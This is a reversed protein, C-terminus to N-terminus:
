NSKAVEHYIYNEHHHFTCVKDHYFLLFKLSQLVYRVPLFNYCRPLSLSPFTISQRIGVAHAHNLTKVRRKSSLPSSSHSIKCAPPVLNSEYKWGQVLSTEVSTTCVESGKFRFAAGFQFCKWDVVKNKSILQILPVNANWTSASIPHGYINKSFATLSSLLYNLYM